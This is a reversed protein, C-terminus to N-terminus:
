PMILFPVLDIPDLFGAVLLLVLVPLGSLTILALRALGVVTEVILLRWPRLPSVFLFELAQSKPLQTLRWGLLVAGEVIGATLLLYGTQAIGDHPHRCTWALSGTLLALHAVVARRFGYQRGPSIAALRFFTCFM